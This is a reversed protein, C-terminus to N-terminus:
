PPLFVLGGIVAAGLPLRAYAEYGSLWRWRPLLHDVRALAPYALGGLACAAVYPLGSLGFPLAAIAGVGGFRLAQWTWDTWKTCGLIISAAAWGGAWLFWWGAGSYWGAGLALIITGANRLGTVIGTTERSMGDLFRWIAGALLFLAVGIPSPVPHITQLLDIM